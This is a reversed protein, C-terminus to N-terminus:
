VEGELTQAAIALVLENFDYGAVKAAMPVLSHSTMGPVTNLELLYFNGQQDAMVDVRGWGYAGVSTFANIALEKIESEKNDSLGCPCLYKTDNSEYKASFDYFVNNTELKIPPLAKGNLIAVTYEEGQIYREALVSRDFKSAEIYAQQLEAANQVLAMGISSGEHCPKVMAPGDFDRMVAEFDSSEDLVSFSPTPLGVGKWLQKTRLKDMGIASAAIGSGTYPLDLLELLAQIKGDEGGAGHLAIFVRDAKAALVENLPNHQVDVEVVDVGEESLARIVAAGSKLSVEREASQGGYLVAVRGLKDVLVQKETKEIM